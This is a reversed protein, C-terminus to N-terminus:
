RQQSADDRGRQPFVSTYNLCCDFPIEPAAAPSVDDVDVLNRIVFRMEEYNVNNEM